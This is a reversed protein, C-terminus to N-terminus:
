VNLIPFIVYTIHKERLIHFGTERWASDLHSHLTFHKKNCPKLIYSEGESEWFRKTIITNDNRLYALDEKRRWIEGTDTFAVTQPQFCVM